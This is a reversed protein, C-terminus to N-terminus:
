GWYVYKGVVRWVGNRHQFDVSVFGWRSTCTKYEQYKYGYGQSSTKGGADFLRDVRSKTWGKEVIRFENRSVCGPTDAQAPATVAGLGTVLLAGVASAAIRRIM